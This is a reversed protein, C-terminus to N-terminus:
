WLIKELCDKMAGIVVSRRDEDFIDDTPFGLKMQEYLYEAIGECDYGAVDDEKNIRQRVNQKPYYLHKTSDVIAVDGKRIRVAKRSIHLTFQCNSDVTIIQGIKYKARKIKWM